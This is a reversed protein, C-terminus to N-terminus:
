AKPHLGLGLQVPRLDILEDKQTYGGNFPDEALFLPTDLDIFSFGGLGAAISASMSMALRTEVLGGIMRTLGLSKAQELIALVEFVGSKMIKVNVADAAKHTKAQIVDNASTCSEDIAIRLGTKSRIEALAEWNGPKIPQEYLSLNASRVADAFRLAEDVSFGANADVLIEADPRAERVTLVRAIDQDLDRGGIKIKLTRFGSFTRAESRAEDVTGTTITIDTTITEEAGGLMARVSTNQSRARADMVATEIACRLSPSAELLRERIVDTAHPDCGELNVKSFSALVIEQTEGNFAPFPAGEGYGVTGDDLTLTVLVNNARTQAGGSIGFAKRMPVDLPRATISRIM